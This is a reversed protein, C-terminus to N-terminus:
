KSTKRKKLAVRTSKRVIPQDHNEDEDSSEHGRKSTGVLDKINVEDEEQKSLIDIIADQSPSAKRGLDKFIKTFVESNTASQTTSVLVVQGTSINDRNQKLHNLQEKFVPDFDPYSQVKMESLHPSKVLTSSKYNVRAFTGLRGLVLDHKADNYDARANGTLYKAGIHYSAPSAKILAM